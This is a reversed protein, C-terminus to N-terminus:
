HISQSIFSLLLLLLFRSMIQTMVFAKMSLEDDDDDDDDDDVVDDDDDDDDDYYDEERREKTPDENTMM